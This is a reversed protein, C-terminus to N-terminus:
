ISQTDKAHHEDKSVAKAKTAVILQCPLQQVVQAFQLVQTRRDLASHVGVIILDLLLLLSLLLDLLVLGHLHFAFEVLRLSVLVLGLVLLHM